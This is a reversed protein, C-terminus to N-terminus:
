SGVGRSIVLGIWGVVDPGLLGVLIGIGFVVPMLIKLKQIERRRIESRAMVRVMGEALEATTMDLLKSASPLLTVIDM